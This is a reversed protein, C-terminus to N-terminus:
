PKTWRSTSYAPCPVFKGACGKAPAFLCPTSLPRPPLALRAYWAAFNSPAGSVAFAPLLFDWPFWWDVGIRAPTIRRFGPIRLCHQGRHRFYGPRRCTLCSDGIRDMFHLRILRNRRCRQNASAPPVVRAKATTDNVTGRPATSVAIKSTPYRIRVRATHATMSDFAQDVCPALRRKQASM